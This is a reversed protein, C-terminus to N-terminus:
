RDRAGQEEARLSVREGTRRVRGEALLKGLHAELSRRALPWLALPTDDYVRALLADMDLAGSVLADIVKGERRLRHAILGDCAAGADPLTPGHSPVLVTGAPCLEDRMRALSHLYAAMDGGDSPEILITGEGAVMDGAYTIPSGSDVFILHGPAHGPTLHAAVSRGGGLAVVDGDDLTADVSVDVRRATEEHALLPAGLVERLRSAHGTHDRHHHSLLIAEVSAGAAVRAELYGELVAQEEPYPCAPEIVVLREEGVVLTNTSTAPPLTPTRLAILEVGPALQSVRSTM